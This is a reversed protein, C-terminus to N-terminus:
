HKSRASAPSLIPATARRVPAVARLPTQGVSPSIMMADQIKRLDREVSERRWYESLRELAERVAVVQERATMEHKRDGHDRHAEGHGAEAHTVIRAPSIVVRNRSGASVVIAPQSGHEAAGDHRIPIHKVGEHADAEGELAERLSRLPKGFDGGFALIPGLHLDLVDAVKQGADITRAGTALLAQDLARRIVAHIHEPARKKALREDFLRQRYFLLGLLAAVLLIFWLAAGSYLLPEPFIPGNWEVPPGPDSYDLSMRWGSPEGELM